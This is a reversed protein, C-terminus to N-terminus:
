QAAIWPILMETRNAISRAAQAAGANFAQELIRPM